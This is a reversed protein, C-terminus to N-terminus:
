RALLFADVQGSKATKKITLQWNSFDLDNEQELELYLYGDQALLNNENIIDLVKPLHEKRYPPDLFIIDFAHQQRNLFRYADDKVLTINDTQDAPLIGLIGELQSIARPHKEVLVVNKAGRSAAELGLAGSGAFLDLCNSERIDFQLWNFLTERVRDPTPRLGPVSAVSLKRGKWQGGIIRLSGSSKAPPNRKKRM